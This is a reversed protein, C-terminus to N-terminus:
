KLQQATRNTYHMTTLDDFLVEALFKHGKPVKWGGSMYVAKEQYDPQENPYPYITYYGQTTVTSLRKPYCLKDNVVMSMNIPYKQKWIGRSINPMYKPLYARIKDPRPDINEINIFYEGDEVKYEHLKELNNM